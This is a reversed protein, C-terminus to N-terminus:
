GSDSWGGLVVSQSDSLKKIRKLNGCIGGCGKIERECVETDAKDEGLDVSESKERKDALM